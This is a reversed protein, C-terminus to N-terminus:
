AANGKAAKEKLGNTKLIGQVTQMRNKLENNYTDNGAQMKPRFDEKTKKGGDLFGSVEKIIDELSTSFNMITQAFAKQDAITDLLNVDAKIKDHKDQMQSKWRRASAIINDDSLIDLSELLSKKPQTSGALKGGKSAKANPTRDVKPLEPPLLTHTSAPGQCQNFASTGLGVLPLNGIPGEPASLMKVGNADLNAAGRMTSSNSSSNDYTGMVECRVYYQQRNKDMPFDEDSHM